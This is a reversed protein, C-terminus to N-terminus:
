EAGTSRPGDSIMLPFRRIKTFRIRETIIGGHRALPNLSLNVTQQILCFCSRIRTVPRTYALAGAHDKLSIGCILISPGKEGHGLFRVGVGVSGRISGNELIDAVGCRGTGKSLSLRGINLLGRGGTGVTGQAPRLASSRPLLGPQPHEIGLRCGECIAPVRHIPEKAFAALLLDEQGVVVRKVPVHRICQDLGLAEVVDGALPDGHPAPWPVGRRGDWYRGWRRGRYRARM